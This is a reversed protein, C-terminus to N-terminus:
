HSISVTKKHYKNNTLQNLMFDAVDARNIKLNLGKHNNDFDIEYNKTIDGNSFASPRVITYDLSSDRILEEQLNHDSLARRLLIGFMIYKWLFNLSNYSDGAGLTSQCILRSIGVNTMGEIINGTGVARIKGKAGDGLACLVAEQGLLASELDEINQVDGKVVRLREHSVNALKDPDRVFATVQHGTALGQKVIEIGVTGTAGFVIIKM